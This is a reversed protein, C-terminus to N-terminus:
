SALVHEPTTSAQHAAGTRFTALAGCWCSFIVAIGQEDNVLSRIQSPFILQRKNCEPCYFDFM